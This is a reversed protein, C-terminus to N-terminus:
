LAPLLTGITKDCCRPTSSWGWPELSSSTTAAAKYRGQSVSHQTEPPDTPSSLAAAEEDMGVDRALAHTVAPSRGQM